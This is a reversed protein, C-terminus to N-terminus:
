KSVEIQKLVENCAELIELVDSKTIDKHEQDTEADWEIFEYTGKVNNLNNLAQNINDYKM